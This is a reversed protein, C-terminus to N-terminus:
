LTTRVVGMPLVAFGVGTVWQPLDWGNFGDPGMLLRMGDFLRLAGWLFGWLFWMRTSRRSFSRGRRSNRSPRQSFSSRM